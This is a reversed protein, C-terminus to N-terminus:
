WCTTWLYPYLCPCETRLCPCETRLCPCTPRTGTPAAQIRPHDAPHAASIATGSGRSRRATGTRRTPPATRPILPVARLAMPAAPAPTPPGPGTRTRGPSRRGDRIPSRTGSVAALPLPQRPRPRGGDKGGRQATPLAGDAPRPHRVRGCPPSFGVRPPVPFRAGTPGPSRASRTSGPGGATAPSGGPRTASAPRWCCWRDAARRGPQLPGAGGIADRMVHLLVGPGPM